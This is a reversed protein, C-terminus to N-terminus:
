AAIVVFGGNGVDISSKAALDSIQHSSLILTSLVREYHVPAGIVCVLITLLEEWTKRSDITAAAMVWAETVESRRVM